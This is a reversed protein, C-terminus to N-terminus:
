EYKKGHSGFKSLMSQIDRQMKSASYRQIELIVNNGYQLGGKYAESFMRTIANKDNQILM